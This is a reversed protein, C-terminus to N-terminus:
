LLVIGWAYRLWNLCAKVRFEYRTHRQANRFGYSSSNEPQRSLTTWAGNRKSRYQIWWSDEGEATDTWTLGVFSGYVVSVKLDQPAVLVQGSAQCALALLLGLITTRM